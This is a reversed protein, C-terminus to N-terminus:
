PAILRVLVDYDTDPTMTHGAVLVFGRADVAIADAYDWSYAGGGMGEGSYSDIWRQEGDADYSIVVMDYGRDGPAEFDDNSVTGHVFTRGTADLAVGAPYDARGYEGIYIDAWLVGGDGAFAGVWIDGPDADSSGYDATASVSGDAAIAVKTFRDSGGASPSELFYEWEVVGRLDRKQIWPTNGQLTPLLARGSVIIGSEHAAGYVTFSSLMYRMDFIPGGFTQLETLAGDVDYLALYGPEEDPLDAGGVLSIRGDALVSVSGPFYPAAEPPGAITDEWDLAGSSDHKGIWMADARTGGVIIYIDEGNELIALDDATSADPRVISELDGLPSVLALWAESGAEGALAVRGDPLGTVARVGDRSGAEVDFRLEWLVTMPAFACEVPCVLGAVMDGDCQEGQELMGNGCEAMSATTEIAGSSDDTLTLTEAGEGSSTPGGSSPDGNTSESGTSVEAGDSGGRCGLALM